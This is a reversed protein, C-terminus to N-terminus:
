KVPTEVKPPSQAVFKLAAALWPRLSFFCTGLEAITTRGRIEAIAGGDVLSALFLKFEHESDWALCANEVCALNCTRLLEVGSLFPVKSSPPALRFLISVCVTRRFEDLHDLRLNPPLSDPNLPETPM